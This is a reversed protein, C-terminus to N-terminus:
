LGEFNSMDFDGLGQFPDLPGQPAHSQVAAPILRQIQLALGQSLAAFQGELQATVQATMKEMVQATVVEINATPAGTGAQNAMDHEIKKEIVTALREIADDGSGPAKRKRTKKKKSPAPTSSSATPTSAAPTSAAPTASPRQSPPPVSAAEEGESVDIVEDAADRADEEPDSDSEVKDKFAKVLNSRDREARSAEKQADEVGEKREKKQKDHDDVLQCWEDMVRQYEKEKDTGTESANTSKWLIHKLRMNKLTVNLTGHSRKAQSQWRLTVATWYGEKGYDDRLSLAVKM